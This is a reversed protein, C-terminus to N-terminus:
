AVLSLLTAVVVVCVGSPYAPIKVNFIDIIYVNKHWKAIYDLRNLETLKIADTRGSFTLLNEYIIM